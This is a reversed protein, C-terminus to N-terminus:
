VSGGKKMRQSGPLGGRFVQNGIGAEWADIITEIPSDGGRGYRELYIASSM